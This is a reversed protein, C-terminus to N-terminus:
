KDMKNDGQNSLLNWLASIQATKNMATEESGPVYYPRSLHNNFSQTSPIEGSDEKANGSDPGWGKKGLCSCFDELLNRM